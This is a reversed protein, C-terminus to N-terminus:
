EAGFDLSVTVPCHDSIKESESKDYMNGIDLMFLSSSIVKKELEKSVIIHDISKWIKFKCSQLNGTLFDLDDNELATINSNKKTPNDNFDGLLIFDKDKKQKSLKDIGEILKQSQLRRMAFSRLRKERTDDYRSTSKFHFSGVFFDIGNYECYAILGPRLDDNGLSISRIETHDLISIKKSIILATKQKEPFSSTLIQYQNTDVIKQLAQRNEIEQLALIDVDLTKIVNGINEYDANSREIMDNVGDGLWAINFTGVRIENQTSCGILWLLSIIISLQLRM